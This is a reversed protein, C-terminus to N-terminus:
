RRPADINLIIETAINLYSEAKEYERVAIQEAERIHGVQANLRKSVFAISLIGMLWILAHALILQIQISREISYLHEMSIASSIGGRIEGTKYGQVAHCELCGKEAIFPRMIRFYEKGSITHIGAVEKIGKEFNVLADKGWRDPANEPRIPKLSTISTFEFGEAKAMERVQRTMYAPNVLTLHKGETTIVDRRVIKLYPNPDTTSIPVYVGGKQTVWKRYLVDKQLSLDARAHALSLIAQRQNYINWTLSLAISLTWIVIIILRYVKMTPSRLGFIGRMKEQINVM